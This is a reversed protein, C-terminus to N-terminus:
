CSDIDRSDVSPIPLSMRRATFASKGIGTLTGAAIVTVAGDCELYRDEAGTIIARLLDVAVNKTEARETVAGMSIEFDNM